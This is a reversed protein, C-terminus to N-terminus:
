PPGGGEFDPYKHKEEAHHALLCCAATAGVIAAISGVDLFGSEDTAAEKVRQLVIKKKSFISEATKPQYSMKNIM